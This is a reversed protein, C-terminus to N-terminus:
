HLYGRRSFPPSYPKTGTAVYSRQGAKYNRVAQKAQTNPTLKKWAKKAARVDSGFLKEYAVAKGRPSKLWQALMTAESIGQAIESAEFNSSLGRLKTGDPATYIDTLAIDLQPEVSLERGPYQLSESQSPGVFPPTGTYTVAPKYPKTKTLSYGFNRPTSRSYAREAQGRAVQGAINQYIADNRLRENDVYNFGTQVGADLADAMFHSSSFVPAPTSGYGTGTTSFSGASGVHSPMIAGAGSVVSGPAEARGDYTQGTNQYGVERSYSNAFQLATLPNFGAAMADDRLQAFDLSRSAAQREAQRDSLKQMVARDAKYAKADSAKDKLYNARDKASISAAYRRDDALRGEAYARDEKTLKAAYKRESRRDAVFKRRQYGQSKKSQALDEARQKGAANNTKKEDRKGLIGGFLKPLVAGAVAAFLGM